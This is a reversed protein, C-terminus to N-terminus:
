TLRLRRNMAEAAFIAVLSVVLSFVALRAAQQEGGPVQLLGYIALPLTRTEGPISSVFTITAGFEGLAKAFGLVVGALLGTRTLPLTVTRFARWRGAGLTRAASELGVDVNEISVRMVRVMLPLAMVAAAIAAGTWRFAVTVGFTDYLWRGLPGQRGLLMLLALGTVVPPLVLPLTVAADLLPKLRSRGRALAYALLYAIPLVAVTGTVAVKLSLGLLERESDSLM